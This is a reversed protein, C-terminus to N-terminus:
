RIYVLREGHSVKRDMCAICEWGEFGKGNCAKEEYDACEGCNLAELCEGSEATLIGPFHAMVMLAVQEDRRLSHRIRGPKRKRRKSVPM